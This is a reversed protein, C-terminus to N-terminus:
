RLYKVGDRTFVAEISNDGAMLQRVASDRDPVPPLEATKKFDIHPVLTSELLDAQAAEIIVQNVRARMEALVNRQEDAPLTKFTELDM